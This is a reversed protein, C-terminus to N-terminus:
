EETGDDSDWAGGIEGHGNADFEELAACAELLADLSSSPYDFRLTETRHDASVVGTEELMPVDVHVLMTEVEEIRGDAVDEPGSEALEAAVYRALRDRERLDHERLYYLAYRRRRNSLLRLFEDLDPAGGDAVGRVGTPGTRVSTGGNGDSCGDREDM